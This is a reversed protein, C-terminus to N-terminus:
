CKVDSMSRTIALRTPYSGVGTIREEDSLSTESNNTTSPSLSGARKHIDMPRPQLNVVMCHHTDGVPSVQPDDRNKDPMILVGDEMEIPSLKPMSVEGDSLLSHADIFTLTSMDMSNSDSNKTKRGCYEFKDALSCKVNLNSYIHQEEYTTITDDPFRILSELRSRKKKPFTRPSKVFSHELISTSRKRETYVMKKAERWLEMSEKIGDPPSALPDVIEQGKRQRWRKGDKIPSMSYCGQDSTNEGAELNEKFSTSPRIHRNMMFTKGKFRIKLTTKKPKEGSRTNGTDPSFEKKEVKPRENGIELWQKILMQNPNMKYKLKGKSTKRGRGVQGSRENSSRKLGLKGNMLTGTANKYSTSDKPVIGPIIKENFCVDVNQDLSIKPEQLLRKLVGNKAGDDVISSNYQSFTLQIKQSGSGSRNVAPEADDINYGASFDKKQDESSCTVTASAKSRSKRRTEGQSDVNSSSFVSNRRRLKKPRSESESDSSDVDTWTMDIDLRLLKRISEQQKKKRKMRRKERTEEMSNTGDDLYVYGKAKTQSASGPSAKKKLSAALSECKNDVGVVDVEEDQLDVAKSVSHKKSTAASPVFKLEKNVVRSKGSCKSLSMPSIISEHKGPSEFVGASFDSLSNGPSLVLSTESSSCEDGSLVEFQSASAKLKRFGKAQQQYESKGKNGLATDVLRKNARPSPLMKKGTKKKKIGNGNNWKKEIEYCDPCMYDDPGVKIINQCGVHSGTSGCWDCVLIEWKGGDKNYDRGKDCECKKADCHLYRELLDTFANPETEWAADQDPIHVGMRLMEEQFHDKNNCLPCKFFHLGATTAHKQICMRHFWSGRCCPSKLTDPCPTNLVSNMCIACSVEAEQTDPCPTQQPRHELCYSSFTDFFQHLTKGNIGCSFHFVTRCKGVVCGITAGKQKCFTCRLRLGRKLEKLVDAPLFGSIGDEDSDGRQSLGSAFLMCFYHITLGFKKIKRGFKEENDESQLCFLCQDKDLGLAKRIENGDEKRHYKTM